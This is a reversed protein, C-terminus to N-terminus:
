LKERSKDHLYRNYQWYATVNRKQFLTIVSPNIRMKNTDRSNMNIM